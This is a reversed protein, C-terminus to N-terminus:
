RADGCAYPGHLALGWSHHVPEKSGPGDMARRSCDLCLTQKSPFNFPQHNRLNVARPKRSVCRGALHGPSARNLDLPGAHTGNGNRRRVRLSSQASAPGRGCERAPPLRGRAGPRRRGPRNPGLFLAVSARPVTPNDTGRINGAVERPQSFRRQGASVHHAISPKFQAFSPEPGGGVALRGTFACTLRKHRRSPRPFYLRLVGAKNRTHGEPRDMGVTPRPPDPRGSTRSCSVSM